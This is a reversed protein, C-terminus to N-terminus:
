PEAKITFGEIRITGEPMVAVPMNARALDQDPRFEVTFKGGGKAYEIWAEPLQKASGIAYAHSTTEGPLTAGIVISQKVGGARVDAIAFGKDDLAPPLDAPALVYIGYAYGFHSTRAPLDKPVDKGTLGGGYSISFGGGAFVSVGIKSEAFDARVREYFAKDTSFRVMPEDAGIVSIKAKRQRVVKQDPPPVPEAYNRGRRLQSLRGNWVSLEVDVELEYEGPAVDQPISIAALVDSNNLSVGSVSGSSFENFQVRKITGMNQRDVTPLTVGITRGGIRAGVVQTSITVDGPFAASFPALQTWPVFGLEEGQRVRALFSAHTEIFRIQIERLQDATFLGDGAAASVLTKIESPGFNRWRANGPGPGPGLNALVNLAASRYQEKSLTKAAYRANIEALTVESTEQGYMKTNFILVSGPLRQAIGATMGRTFVAVGVIGGFTLLMVLGLAAIWPRRARARMVIASRARLDSGCEPCRSVSGDAVGEQLSAGKKLGQLDFTCRRCRPRQDADIRRGVIGWILLLLGGVFLVLFLVGAFMAVFITGM